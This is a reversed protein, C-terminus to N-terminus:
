ASAGLVALEKTSSQMFFGSVQTEPTTPPCPLELCSGHNSNVASKSQREIEEIYEKTPKDTNANDTFNYTIIVRDEYYIIERIFTNVILKRDKIDDTNEIIIKNLYDVIKEKTLFTYNRSQEISLDIEVRAYAEELERLRDKTNDSVMGDEIARIINTIKKKLEAKEKELVKIAFNEKSMKEHVNHIGEAIMELNATNKLLAKTASIVLDELYEKKVPNCVCENKKQRKNSCLYYYHTAGARSTGSEGRM